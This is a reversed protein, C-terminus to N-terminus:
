AWQTAPLLHTKSFLLFHMKRFLYKAMCTELIESEQAEEWGLMRFTCIAKHKGIHKAFRMQEGRGLAAWPSVRKAGQSLGKAFHVQKLVNM